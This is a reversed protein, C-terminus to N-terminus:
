GYPLPSAEVMCSAGSKILLLLVMLVIIISKFVLVLVSPQQGCLSYHVPLKAQAREKRKKCLCAQKKSNQAVKEAMWPREANNWLYVFSMELCMGLQREM